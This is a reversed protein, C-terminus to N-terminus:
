VFFLKSWQHKFAALVFLFIFYKIVVNPSFSSVQVMKVEHITERVSRSPALNPMFMAPSEM